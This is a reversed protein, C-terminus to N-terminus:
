ATRSLAVREELHSSPLAKPLAASTEAAFDDPSPMSDKQQWATRVQLVLPILAELVPASQQLSATLMRSRLHSYFATLSAALMNGDEPDIWSQLQGLVMYAHNLEACRMEIDNARLAVAARRLDGCLTDYLALLLGIPSASDIAAIRYSLETNNQM